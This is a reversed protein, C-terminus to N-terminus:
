RMTAGDPESLKDFTSRLEAPVTSFCAEVKGWLEPDFQEGQQEVHLRDIAAHLLHHIDGASGLGMSKGIEEKSVGALSLVLADRQRPELHIVARGFRNVVGSSPVKDASSIVGRLKNKKENKAHALETASADWVARIVASGDPLREANADVGIQSCLRTAAADILRLSGADHGVQTLGRLTTITRALLLLQQLAGIQLLAACSGAAEHKDDVGIGMDREPPFSWRELTGGSGSGPPTPGGLNASLTSLRAIGPRDRRMDRAHPGFDDHWIQSLFVRADDLSKRRHRGTLDLLSVGALSHGRTLAICFTLRALDSRGSTLLISGLAYAADISWGMTVSATLVGGLDPVQSSRHLQDLTTTVTSVQEPELVASGLDVFDQSWDPQGIQHSITALRFLANPDRAQAACAYLPLAQRYRGKAELM